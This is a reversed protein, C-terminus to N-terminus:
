GCSSCLFRMGPKLIESELFERELLKANAGGDEAYGTVSWSIGV